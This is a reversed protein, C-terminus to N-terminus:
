HKYMNHNTMDCVYKIQSIKVSLNFSCCSFSLYRTSVAFFSVFYTIYYWGGVNKAFIATLICIPTIVAQNIGSVVLYAYLLTVGRKRFFPQEGDRQLRIFCYIAFSGACILTIATLLSLIQSM